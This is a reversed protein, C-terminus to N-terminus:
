RLTAEILFKEGNDPTALNITFEMGEAKRSDMRITINM